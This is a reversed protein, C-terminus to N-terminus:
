RTYKRALRAFDLIAADLAEIPPTLIEPNDPATYTGGLEYILRYLVEEAANVEGAKTALDDPGYLSLLASIERIQAKATNVAAIHDNLQDNKPVQQGAARARYAVNLTVIGNRVLTVASILKACSEGRTQRTRARSGILNKVPELAVGVVVGALTFLGTIVNPWM